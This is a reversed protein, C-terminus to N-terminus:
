FTPALRRLRSVPHLRDLMDIFLSEIFPLSNSLDHIDDLLHLECKYRDAFRVVFSPPVVDDCWGHVVVSRAAHPTPENLAYGPLYVAPSLLLLADPKFKKSAALAVYAGMSSGVIMVRGPREDDIHQDIFLKFRDDASPIQSYDPIVVKWGHRRAAAALLECKRSQPSSDRGHLIYVTNTM